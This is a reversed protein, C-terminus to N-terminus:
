VKADSLDEDDDIGTIVQIAGGNAGTLELGTTEKWGARTRLWFMQASINGNEASEFLKTGIKSNADIRGLDLDDRYHKTLTDSSIQLKKAIDEYTIGVASLTRVLMRKEQTPIHEVGQM